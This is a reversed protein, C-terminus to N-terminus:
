NEPTKDARAIAAADTYTTPYRKTLKDQNEAIIKELTWGFINAMGQIYFMLDGLEEKINQEDAQKNYVWVKKITDLLEGAEGSIGVAMHLANLTLSGMPKTRSRVFESYEMRTDAENPEMTVSARPPYKKNLEAWYDTSM